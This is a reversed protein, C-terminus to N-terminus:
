GNELMRNPKRRCSVLVAFANLTSFKNAEQNSGEPAPFARISSCLSLNLSSDMAEPTRQGAAYTLAHMKWRSLSLAFGLELPYYM